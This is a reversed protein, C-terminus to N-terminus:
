VQIAAPYFDLVSCLLRGPGPQSSSSPVLSISVSPPVRREVSFPRFVEYNPRCLRDVAARADDLYEPHSNRYQAHKEGYPTFGVFHGVDSDFMLYLQRNYIYRGVFKVKETGNIFQCEYKHMQQFVGTL